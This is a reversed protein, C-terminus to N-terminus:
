FAYRIQAVLDLYHFSNNYTPYKKYMQTLGIYTQGGVRWHKGLQYYAGLQLGLGWPNYIAKGDFPDKGGWESSHTEKGINYSLVPGAELVTGKCRQGEVHYRVVVPVDLYVCDDTTGGIWDNDFTLKGRMAVGPMVSWHSNFYCDAGVGLRMANYNPGGGDKNAFGFGAYLEVELHKFDAQKVENTQAMMPMAALLLGSSLFLKTNM